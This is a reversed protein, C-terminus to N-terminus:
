GQHRHRELDHVEALQTGTDQEAPQERLGFL